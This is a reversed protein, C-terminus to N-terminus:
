APSRDQLFRSDVNNGDCFILNEVPLLKEAKRFYYRPFQPFAKRWRGEVKGPFLVFDITGSEFLRQDNAQYPTKLGILGVIIRRTSIM